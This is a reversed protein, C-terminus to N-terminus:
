GTLSTYGLGKSGAGELLGEYGEFKPDGELGWVGSHSGEATRIGPELDGGVRRKLPKPAGRCTQSWVM